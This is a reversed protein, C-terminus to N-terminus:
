AGTGQHEIYYGLPKSGASLLGGIAQGYGQAAANSAQQRQSGIQSMQGLGQSQGQLSALTQALGANDAGGYILGMLTDRTTQDGMRYANARQEAQQQISAAGRDREAAIEGQASADVSSGLMGKRGLNQASTTFQQRTQDALDAMSAQRQAEVDQRQQAIRNPDMMWQNVRGAEYARKRGTLYQQMAQEFATMQAQAARQVDEPNTSGAGAQWVQSAPQQMLRYASPGQSRLYNNLDEQTQARWNTIASRNAREAEEAADRAGGRGMTAANRFDFNRYRLPNLATRLGGTSLISEDSGLGALLGQGGVAGAMALPGLGVAGLGALGIGAAGGAALPRRANGWISSSEAGRTPGASRIGPIGMQLTQQNLYYDYPSAM